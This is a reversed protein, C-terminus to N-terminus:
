QIHYTQKIVGSGALKPKHILFNGAIRFIVTCVQTVSIKTKYKLTEVQYVFKCDKFVHFKRQEIGSNRGTFTHLTDILSQLAHLYSVAGLMVRLLKGTSLLLTHSYRTGNNGIGANDKGILRRSIQIRRITIFHHIEQFLQIM